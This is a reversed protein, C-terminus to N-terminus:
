KDQFETVIVESVREQMQERSPLATGELAVKAAAAATAKQLAEAPTSECLTAVTFASLFTDGAAVTGRVPVSLAKACLMEDKGALVAGGEGLSLLLGTQPYKECFETIRAALAGDGSMLADFEARNPKVLDPAAELAAKLVEGDADVVTYAGKKRALRVCEAYFDTPVGAPLSGALYLCDFEAECIARKMQSLEDESVPGGRQNCETLTGDQERLKVNMRVGAKTPIRKLVLPEDKYYGEYVEGLAGGTFTIYEVRAGLRAMVCAANGSKCGGHQTVRVARNVAGHELPADFVMTRDVGPNLAPVAIRLESTNRMGIAM